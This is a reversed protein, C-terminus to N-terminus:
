CAKTVNTNGKLFWKSVWEQAIEIIKENEEGEGIIKKLAREAKERCMESEAQYKEGIVIELYKIAVSTTWAVEDINHKIGFERLSCDADSRDGFDFYSYFEETPLFKGDFSQLRLFKYLLDIDSIIHNESANGDENILVRNDPSFSGFSEIAVSQSIVGPVTVNHSAPSGFLINSPRNNSASGFGIPPLGGPPPVKLNQVASESRSVGFGSNFMFGFASQPPQKQADTTSISQSGFGGQFGGGYSPRVESFTSSYTQDNSGSGFGQFYPQYNSQGYVSQDQSFTSTSPQYNSQGSGFGLNPFGCGYASQSSQVQLPSPQHNLQGSGSGFGSQ